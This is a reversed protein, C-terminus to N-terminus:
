LACAAYPNDQGGRDTRRALRKGPVNYAFDRGCDRFSRAFREFTVLNAFTSRTLGVFRDATKAIEFDVLSTTVPPLSQFEEVSLIDSKWIIEVGTENRVDQSIQQKPAFIYREDCTVYARECEPFTKKLKLIIQPATINYDEPQHVVLKMHNNSHIVWDEEIRLQVVTDIDYHGFVSGMLRKTSPLDRALPVLSRLVDAALSSHGAEVDKAANGVAGAGEGFYNWGCRDIRDAYTVGVPAECIEIGWRSALKVVAGLDFIVELPFVESLTDHQDKSYIKPLYLRKDDSNAACSFLGLLALKQNNIGGDNWDYGIMVREMNRIAGM